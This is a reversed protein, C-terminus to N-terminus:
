RAAAVLTVLRRAYQAGGCGDAQKLRRYDIDSNASDM